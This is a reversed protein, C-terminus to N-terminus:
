THDCITMSRIFESKRGSANRGELIKWHHRGAKGNYKGQIQSPEGSHHGEPFDLREQPCKGHNLVSGDVRAADPIRVDESVLCCDGRGVRGNRRGEDKGNGGGDREIIEDVNWM